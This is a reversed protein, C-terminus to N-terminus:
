LKQWVYAPMGPNFKPQEWTPLPPHRQSNYSGFETWSYAREILNDIAGLQNITINDGRLAFNAGDWGAGRWEETLGCGKLANLFYNEQSNVQTREYEAMDSIKPNISVHLNFTSQGAEVEARLTPELNSSRSLINRQSAGELFSSNRKEEQM